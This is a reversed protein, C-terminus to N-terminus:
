MGTGAAAGYSHCTECGVSRTTDGAANNTANYQFALLDNYPGGHPVHCSLCMLGDTAGSATITGVVVANNGAFSVANGEQLSPTLGVGLAKQAAFSVDTPHRIWTGAVAGRQNGAASTPDASQHFTGHCTACFANMDTANYTVESRTGSTVAAGAAIAGYDTQASTTANAGALLRYTSAGSGHHGGSGGHCDACTLAPNAGAGLSFTGGPAQTSGAAIMATDAAQIGAVNHQHSSSGATFDFYGANNIFGTPATAVNDVQPAGVANNGKGTALNDVTQDAHCGVCGTGVLLTDHPTGAVGNQSAHMTHCNSCVGSVKGANAVYPLLFAGAVLGGLVVSRKFM